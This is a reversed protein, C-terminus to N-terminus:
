LTKPVQEKALAEGSGLFGREVRCCSKKFRELRSMDLIKAGPKSNPTNEGNKLLAFATYATM